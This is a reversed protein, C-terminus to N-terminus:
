PRRGPPRRRRSRPRSSSPIGSLAQVGSSCVGSQWLPSSGWVLLRWVFRSSVRKRRAKPCSLHKASVGLPRELSVM